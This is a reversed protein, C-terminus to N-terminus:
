DLPAAGRPPGRKKAANARGAGAREADPPSTEPVAGKRRPQDKHEPTLPPATLQELARELLGAAARREEASMAELDLDLRVHPRAETIRRARDHMRDYLDIAQYIAVPYAFGKVEIEGRAECHVQDKILAYTEYAILIGGPPALRELRSALNVTSGVITYDM